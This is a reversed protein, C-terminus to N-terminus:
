INRLNPNNGRNPSLFAMPVRPYGMADFSSSYNAPCELTRLCVSLCRGKYYLHKNSVTMFTFTKLIIEPEVLEGCKAECRIWIDLLKKTTSSFELLNRCHRKSGVQWSKRKGNRWKQGSRRWCNRLFCSCKKTGSRSSSYCFFNFVKIFDFYWKETLCFRDLKNYEYPLIRVKHQNM